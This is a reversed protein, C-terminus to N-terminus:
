PHAAKDNVHEVLLAQFHPDKRLPDWVPDLRLMSASMSLGAPISMLQKLIAIAQDNEGVSVYIQALYALYEPGAFADRSIPLLEVARRGQTIAEDKLGLGAAALGLAMHRDWDGLRERVGAQYDRYVETYLAKAKANDGMAARAWALRLVRPTM